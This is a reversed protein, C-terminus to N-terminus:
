SCIAKKPIESLQAPLNSVTGGLWDTTVDIHDAEIGAANVLDRATISHGETFLKGDVYLGAWDDGNSVLTIKM